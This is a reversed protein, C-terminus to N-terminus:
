ESVPLPRQLWQASGSLPCRRAIRRHGSLDKLILDAALRDLLEAVGVPDEVMPFHGSQFEIPEVGLLEKAMFRQFTPEFLEDEAAYVLATPVEPHAQLPYDGPPMAMPRLREALARAGEPPLRPYMVEIATEADWVTTGDPQVPPFPIGERFPDPAGPPPELPGMRPCLYVLLSIPRSVAVLPGLTSSQSHAVVVGPGDSGELAELAPRIREEYGASSDHLPLDPASTSHGLDGLPGAVWDWCSPDHWAGHLMVFTAMRKTYRVCFTSRHCLRTQFDWARAGFPSRLGVFPRFMVMTPIRMTMM